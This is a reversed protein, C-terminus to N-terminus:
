LLCLFCQLNIYKIENLTPMLKINCCVNATNALTFFTFCFQLFIYIKKIAM